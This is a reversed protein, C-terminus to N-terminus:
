EFDDIDVRDLLVLLDAFRDFFLGLRDVMVQLTAVANGQTVTTSQAQNSWLRLTKIGAAFQRDIAEVRQQKIEAAYSERETRDAPREEVVAGDVTRRYTITGVVDVLEEVELLVGNTYRETRM